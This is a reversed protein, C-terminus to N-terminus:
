SEQSINNIIKQGRTCKKPLRRRIFDWLKLKKTDTNEYERQNDEDIYTKKQARNRSLGMIEDITWWWIIEDWYQHWSRNSQDCEPYLNRYRSLCKKTIPKEEQNRMTEKKEEQKAVEDILQKNEKGDRWNISSKSYALAFEQSM